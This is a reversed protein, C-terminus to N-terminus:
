QLEVGCVQTLSSLSSVLLGNGCNAFTGSRVVLCPTVVSKVSLVLTVNLPASMSKTEAGSLLDAVLKDHLAM